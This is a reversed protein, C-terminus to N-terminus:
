FFSNMIWAVLDYIKGSVLWGLVLATLIFVPIRKRMYLQMVQKSENGPQEVEKKTNWAEVSVGWPKKNEEGREYLPQMLPIVLYSVDFVISLSLFAFIMICMFGLFTSIPGSFPAFWKRAENFDASTDTKLYRVASSVSEDQSAVFNYLKNKTTVGLNTSKIYSLTDEMFEKKQDTDLTAYNKNSFTIVGTTIDYSIVTVGALKNARSAVATIAGQNAPMQGVTDIEDKAYCTISIFLVMYLQALIFFLWKFRNM